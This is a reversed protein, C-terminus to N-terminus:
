KDSIFAELLLSLSWLKPAPSIFVYKRGGDRKSEREREGDRQRVCVCVCVCVYMCVCVCLDESKLLPRLGNEKEKKRCM